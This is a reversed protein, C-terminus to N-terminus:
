ETEGLTDMFAAALADLLRRHEATLRVGACVQRAFNEASRQFKERVQRARLVVVGEERTIDDLEAVVRACVHFMRAVMCQKEPERLASVKDSLGSRSLALRWTEACVLAPGIDM